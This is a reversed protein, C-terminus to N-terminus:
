KYAIVTPFIKYKDYFFKIAKLGHRKLMLQMEKETKYVQWKAELIEVFIKYQIQLNEAGIGNIDWHSEESGLPPHTLFSTILLGGPKLAKALKNFLKSHKDEDQIYINLGNSIILDFQNNFKINFADEEILTVKESINKTEANAKALNLSESDLDLGTLKYDKASNYELELLDDMLGCPISLASFCDLDPAKKNIYEQALDQFIRYREQSAVLTPCETYFWKELENKYEDKTEPKNILKSTWYGNLSQNEILYKAIEIDQMQDILTFLTNKYFRTQVSNEIAERKKAIIEEVREPNVTDAM